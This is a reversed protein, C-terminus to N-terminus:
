PLRSFWVLSTVAAATGLILAAVMFPILIEEQETTTGVAVGLTEFVEGLAEATVADFFQGGTDDAIRRMARPNSPVPIVQGQFTITGQRTGFSITSVAIGAENAVGVGVSNPRGSNTDGDSMVVVTGPNPEDEGSQAQLAALDATILGVSTIIAEGIATGPRLGLQDIGTRVAQHDSTPTVVTEATEAFSVLGVRVTPPVQDLFRQAAEQAAALRTPPVDTADMSISVDFALVVTSAEVPVEVDRTPRAIGIVLFSIVLLMAIAPVHRRWGPSDPAVEDLLDLNTFQVAYESRTRQRWLYAIALAIPVVLLLLALPAAFM